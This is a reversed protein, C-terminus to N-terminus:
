PLMWDVFYATSEYGGLPSSLLLQLDGSCTEAVPAWQAIRADRQLFSCACVSRPATREGERKEALREHATGRCCGGALSKALFFPDKGGRWCLAGWCLLRSRVPKVTLLCVRLAIARCRVVRCRFQSSEDCVRQRNTKSERRREHFCAEGGRRGRGKAGRERGEGGRM